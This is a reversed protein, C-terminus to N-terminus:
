GPMGYVYGAGKEKLLRATQERQAAVVPDEAKASTAATFRTNLHIVNDKQAPQTNQQDRKNFFGFM